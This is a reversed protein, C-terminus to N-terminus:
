RIIKKLKEFSLNYVANTGTNTFTYHWWETELANFGFEEMTTKLLKRNELIQKSLNTFNHHASDTFNDFGTGMKLENGASDVITVDLALGRNHNSGSKPNAVYREDKILDWMLKTASYPRYADWIKITYKKAFLKEQVKQLALAVDNRLYTTVTKNYLKTNTFNNKTTYQLDLKVAPIYIKVNVLKNAKNDMVVSDYQKVTNIIYLNQAALNHVSLIIVIASIYKNM